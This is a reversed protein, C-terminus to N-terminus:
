AGDRDPNRASTAGARLRRWSDLSFVALAIWILAFTIARRADLSEGLFAIAMLFQVSPALYQLFGITSLPLRRAAAVFWLLPVATVVGALMLLVIARADIESNADLPDGIIVALSPPLVILTEILLGILPGARIVKRVLGYLAFSCALTIAIWPFGGSGAASVAVGVAALAVSVWQWPRLRERLVAWGLVVSILPNIYYGLSAHLVRGTEVAHIFVFWNVSVLAASLALWALLRRDRAVVFVERWRRQSAIIAALFVVSWAIRHALVTLAPLHALLHFYIPAVGWWLYAGLGYLLGVRAERRAAATATGRTSRPAVADPLPSQEIPPSHTEM